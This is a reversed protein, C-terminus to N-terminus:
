MSTATLNPHFGATNGPFNLQLAAEVFLLFEPNAIAIREAPLTLDQMRFRIRASIEPPLSDIFSSLRNIRPVTLVKLATSHLFDRDMGILEPFYLSDLIGLNEWLQLSLCPSISFTEYLSQLIKWRRPSASFVSFDKQRAYTELAKWTADDFVCGGYSSQLMIYNKIIRFVADVDMEYEVPVRIKRQALDGLGNLPDIIRQQNTDYKLHNFTCENADETHIRDGTYRSFEIVYGGSKFSSAENRICVLSSFIEKLKDFPADTELDWDKPSLGLAIDRVAGGFINVRYGHSHLIRVVDQVKDPIKEQIQIALAEADPVEPFPLYVSMGSVPALSCSQIEIGPVPCATHYSLLTLIFLM